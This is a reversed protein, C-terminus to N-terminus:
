SVAPSEAERPAPALPLSVRFHAGAPSDMVAISGGHAAVFDRAIALGLGSGQMRGRHGYEGRYFWEFIRSRDSQPVGPGQDIVDLQVEGRAKALMCSVVGTDPSYKVANSILNDVIVRLKEPDGQLTASDLRADFRIARAAAELRHAELIDGVIRELAVPVTQTRTLSDQARQYDLLAEIQRQLEAGQKRLIAVIEGQSVSLPGATGDALLEAGERLSTLPTKLEHSVHRLFLRKQNELEQLRQRLWDLRNGLNVLDAPGGVSVAADFRGDGLARIARDIQRIPKAVLWTVALALLVGAALAAALRWWLLNQAQTATNRLNDIERDIMANGDDLVEQALDALDAYGDVLATAEPGKAVGRKLRDYLEAEKDITRNLSQLQPEDLPLLSLESTTKRFQARVTEYDAILTPDDLILYQRAAREMATVQELVQRGGRASQAAQGVMVGSQEALREVYFSASVLGLVLPLAVLGLALLLLKLFSRPYHLDFGTKM